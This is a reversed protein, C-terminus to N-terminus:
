AGKPAPFRGAKTSSVYGRARRSSFAITARYSPWTRLSYQDRPPLSARGWPLLVVLVLAVESPAIMFFVQTVIMRAAKRAVRRPPHTVVLGRSPACCSDGNGRYRLLGTRFAAGRCRPPPM